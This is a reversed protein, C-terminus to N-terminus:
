TFRLWAGVLATLVALSFVVLAAAGVVALLTRATTMGRPEGLPEGQVIQQVAGVTTRLWEESTASPVGAWDIAPEGAPVFLRRLTGASEPGPALLRCLWGDPETAGTGGEARAVDGASATRLAHAIAPATAILLRVKGETASGGGNPEADCTSASGGPTDFDDEVAGSEAGGASWATDTPDGPARGRGGTTGGSAAARSQLGGDLAVLRVPLSPLEHRLREVLARGMDAAGADVVLTPWRTQQELRDALSTAGDERLVLSTYAWGALGLALSAVARGLNVPWNTPIQGGLLRLIILGLIYVAGGLVALTAGLLCGYLYVKRTFARRETAGEEDHLVARRQAPRWHPWWIASGVAALAVSWSFQNGVALHRADSLLAEVVLALLGALGVSTCAIGVASALYVYLRRVAAGRATERMAESEEDLVRKHYLWVLAAVLLVSAVDRWDGMPSQGTLRRVAGALLTAASGAALLMSVLVAGYMYLQRLVVTGDEAQGDVARAGRWFRIWLPLGITLTALWEALVEPSAAPFSAGAYLASRLLKAVADGTALLGIASFALAYTASLAATLASRRAASRDEAVLRRHFLWWAGLVLVAAAERLREPGPSLNRLGGLPQWGTGLFALLTRWAATALGVSNFLAPALLVAMTGYLFAGRIASAREAPDRRVATRISRWHLLYVPLVVILLALRFAIAERSGIPQAGQLAVLITGVLSVLTWALALVCVAAVLYFYARRATAM